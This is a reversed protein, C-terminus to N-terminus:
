RNESILGNENKVETTGDRQTIEVRTKGNEKIETSGDPRFSQEKGGERTVLKGTDDVSISMPKAVAGNLTWNKGGDTTAYVSKDGNVTRTIEYPEKSTADKYKFESVRGLRDTVTNVRGQGDKVITSGDLRRITEKDVSGDAKREITRRTGDKPDFSEERKQKDDGQLTFNKGDSSTWVKGDPDKIESIKGDPGSKIDTKKGAADVITEFQGNLGRQLRSGDDNLRVM